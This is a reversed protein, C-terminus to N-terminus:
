DGSRFWPKNAFRLGFPQLLVGAGVPNLHPAREYITTDHGKLSITAALGAVGAGIIAIKL